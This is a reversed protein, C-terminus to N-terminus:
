ARRACRKLAARRKKASKLKRAKKECARRRASKKKAAPKATAPQAAPAPQPAAEPSSETITPAPQGALRLTVPFGAKAAKKLVGEITPGVDTAVYQFGYQSVLGLAKGTAVHVFPGGSDGNVSPGSLTFIDADDSQLVTQRSEQTPQTEGFGVGYGSMQILDGMETEDATTVGTPFEPHGKMAPDVRGLHEPAVEIFAYDTLAEGAQGIFAFRGFVEGDIDMAEQGVEEGCHAATGIFTRGANAGAGDFVFNLTCQGAGTQLMAGPQLKTQAQAAPVLCLSAGLIALLLRPM